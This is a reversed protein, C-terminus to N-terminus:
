KIAGGNGMAHGSLPWVTVTRYFLSYDNTAPNGTMLTYDGTQVVSITIPLTTGTASKLDLQPFNPRTDGPALGGPNLPVFPGTIIPSQLITLDWAQYLGDLAWLYGVGPFYKPAGQASEGLPTSFMVTSASVSSSWNSGVSPDEGIAGVYFSWNAAQQCDSVRACRGLYWSTLGADEMWVYLYTPNGDINLSGTSGQEYQVFMPRAFESGSMTPTDTPAPVDGNADPSISCTTIGTSHNPNCWTAGGDTSKMLYPTQGSFPPLSAQRFVFWYLLGSPRSTDEVYNLGSSKWTNGDSWPSPCNSTDYACFETMCNVNLGNLYGTGVFKALLLNQGITGNCDGTPAFGYGDNWTTYLTGDTAWALSPTDGYSYRGNDPLGNEGDFQDNYRVLPSFSVGQGLLHSGLVLACLFM